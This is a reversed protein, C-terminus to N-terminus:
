IEPYDARRAGVAESLSVLGDCLWLSYLDRWEAQSCLRRLVLEHPEPDGRPSSSTADFGWFFASAAPDRLVAAAALANDGSLVDHIPKKLGLAWAEWFGGAPRVIRGSAQLCGHHPWGTISRRPQHGSAISATGATSSSAHSESALLLNGPRAHWQRVRSADR